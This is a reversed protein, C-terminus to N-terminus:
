HRDLHRRLAAVRDVERRVRRGALWDLMPKRRRRALHVWRRLHARWDRLLRDGPRGYLTRVEDRPPLLVLRLARAREGWRSQASLLAGIRRGTIQPAPYRGLQAMSDPLALGRPPTWESLPRPVGLTTEVLHLAIHVAETLRWEEARRWLLPWDIALCELAEALDWVQTLPTEFVHNKLHLCLHLFLDEAAMAYAGTALEPRPIARSWIADLDIAADYGHGALRWHLEFPLAAPEPPMYALHRQHASAVVESTPEFAFVYGQAAFWRHYAPVDEARVLFDIDGMARYGLSAYIREALDVGKLLMAPRGTAAIAQALVARGALNRAAIAMTRLRLQAAIPAPAAVGARDLRRALLHQGFRTDVREWLARWEAPSLAALRADGEADWRLCRVLDETM